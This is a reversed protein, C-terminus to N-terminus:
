GGSRPTGAPGAPRAAPLPGELAHVALPRSGPFHGWNVDVEASGPGCCARSVSRAPLRSARGGPRSRTSATVPADPRQTGLAPADDGGKLSPSGSACLPAQGLACPWYIPCTNLGGPGPGTIKSGPPRIILPAPGAPIVAARLAGAQFHPHILGAVQSFHPTLRPPPPLLLSTGSTWCCTPLAVWLDTCTACQVIGMMATDVHGRFQAAPGPWYLAHCPPSAM